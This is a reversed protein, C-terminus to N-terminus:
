AMVQDLNSTALSDDLRRVPDDAFTTGCEEGEDELANIAPAYPGNIIGSGLAAM